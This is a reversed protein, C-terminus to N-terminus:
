GKPSIVISSLSDISTTELDKQFKTSVGVELPLDVEQGSTKIHLNKINDGQRLYAGMLVSGQINYDKLKALEIADPVLTGETDFETATFSNDENAVWGNVSSIPLEVIQTGATIEKDSVIIDKAFTTGSYTGSGGIRLYTFGEISSSSLVSHYPSGNIPVRKDAIFFEVNLQNEDDESVWVHLRVKSYKGQPLNSAFSAKHTDTKGGSVFPTYIVTEGFSMRGVQGNAFKVGIGMRPHYGNNCHLFATAWIESKVIEPFIYDAYAYEWSSKFVLENNNAAM